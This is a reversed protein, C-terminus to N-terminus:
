YNRGDADERDPGARRGEHRGVWYFAGAVMLALAYWTLAYVLHNNHFSVVTLGGVPAPGNGPAQRGDREASAADADVFYPAVSGLSQAAAIAEVDRSYWRGAAPDNRRLFAGDPQSMRLLGTVEVNGGGQGAAAADIKGTPIFGRNVLVIGVQTTALPTMLWYGGGLDTVAQVKVTRDYRYTGALRVPRYEDSAASLQAWREPGPAPVPAAHVRQEVREILALKWQLRYVQWTGLAAFAIFALVAFIALALRKRENRPHQATDGTM